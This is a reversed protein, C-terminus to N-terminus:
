LLELNVPYALHELVELQGLFVLYVLLVWPGLHETLEM